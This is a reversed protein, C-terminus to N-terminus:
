WGCLGPGKCLRNASVRQALKPAGVLPPSPTPNLRYYPECSDSINLRTFIFTEAASTPPMEPYRESVLRKSHAIGKQFFAEYM